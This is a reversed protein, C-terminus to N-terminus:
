AFDSNEQDGPCQLVTKESIGANMQLTCSHTNTQKLKILTKSNLKNKPFSSVCNLREDM